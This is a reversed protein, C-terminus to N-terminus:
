HHKAVILASVCTFISNGVFALIIAAVYAIGSAIVPAVGAVQALVVAVLVYVVSNACAVIAVLVPERGRIWAAYLENHM